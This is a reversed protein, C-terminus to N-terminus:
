FFTVFQVSYITWIFRVLSQLLIFSGHNAGGQDKADEGGGWSCGVSKQLVDIPSSVDRFIGLCKKRACRFTCCVPIQTCWAAVRDSLCSESHSGTSPPLGLNPAMDHQFYSVQIKSGYIYAPVASQVTDFALISCLAPYTFNNDGGGGPRQKSNWWKDVSNGAGVYAWTVSRHHVSISLVYTKIWLLHLSCPIMWSDTPPPPLPTGVDQHKNTIDSTHGGNLSVPLYTVWLFETRLQM